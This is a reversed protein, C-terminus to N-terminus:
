NGGPPYRELWDLVRRVVLEATTRADRAEEPRLDPVGAPFDELMRGAHIRQRARMLGEARQRLTADLIASDRGSTASAVLDDLKWTRPSGDFNTSAFVGLNLSRAHKVVFTLVAEVIAASLVTESIPSSQASTQNLEATTQTWWLRFKGYGLSQLQAGFADLPEAHTPRGDTRRDIVDRVIPCSQIHKRM